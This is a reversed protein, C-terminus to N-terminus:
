ECRWIIDFKTWIASDTANRMNIMYKSFLPIQESFFSKMQLSPNLPCVRRILAFKREAVPTCYVGAQMKQSACALSELTNRPVMVGIISDIPHSRFTSLRIWSKSQVLFIRAGLRYRVRGREKEGKEKEEGETEGNRRAAERKRKRERDRRKEICESTNRGHRDPAALDSM